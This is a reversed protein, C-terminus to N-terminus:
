SKSPSWYLSIEQGTVKKVPTLINEPSTPFALAPNQFIDLLKHAAAKGLQSPDQFITGVIDGATIANVIDTNMDYCVATISRQALRGEKVLELYALSAHENTLFVGKVDPTRQIVDLMSQKAEEINMITTFVEVVRWNYSRAKQFFGEMRNFISTINRPGCALVTPNGSLADHMLEAAFEGGQRNDSFVSILAHQASRDVIILPINAKRADLVIRGGTQEDFSCLALGKLWPQRLLWNLYEAQLIPDNQSDFALVQYRHETLVSQLGEYIYGYFFPAGPFVFAVTPQSVDFKEPLPPPSILFRGMNEALNSELGGLEESSTELDHAIEANRRVLDQIEEISNVIADTAQLQTNASLEIHQTVDKLINAMEALHTSDQGQQTATAYLDGIKQTIQETALHVQESNRTQTVTADALSAAMELAGQISEVITSLIEGSQNALVVGDDVAELCRQMAMTGQRVENQLAHIIDGIEQTSTKTRDALDKIEDAVVSFGRGHEGAQAAIISANLALLNTQGAVGNIVELIEGIRGSEDGLRRIALAADEVTLKITQIGEIVTGVAMGGEKAEASVTESIGALSHAHQDIKQMFEHIEHISRSTAEASASLLEVSSNIHETSTLLDQIDTFTQDLSDAQRRINQLVERLNGAVEHISSSINEVERTATIANRSGQQAMAAVKASAASLQSTEKRLDAIVDRLEHTMIRLAQGFATHAISDPIDCYLQGDILVGIYHSMGALTHMYRLMIPNLDNNPLSTTEEPLTGSELFAQSTKLLTYLEQQRTHITQELAYIEALQIFTQGADHAGLPADLLQRLRSLPSGIWHSYLFFHFGTLILTCIGVISILSLWSVSLHGAIRLGSLLSFIVLAGALNGGVIFIRASLHKM